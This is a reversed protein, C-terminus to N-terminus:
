PGDGVTVQLVGSDTQWVAMMALSWLTRYQVMRVPVSLVGVIEQTFLPVTVDSPGAAPQTVQGACVLTVVPIAELRPEEWSFNVNHRVVARAQLVQRVSFEERVEFLQTRLWRGPDQVM